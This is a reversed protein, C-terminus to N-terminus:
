LKEMLVWVNLFHVVKKQASSPQMIRLFPNMLWVRIGAWFLIQLISIPINHIEAEGFGSNDTETYWAKEGCFLM